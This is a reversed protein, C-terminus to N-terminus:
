SYDEGQQLDRCFFGPRTRLKFYIHSYRFLGVVSHGNLILSSLITPLSYEKDFYAVLHNYSQVLSVIYIWYNLITHIHCAINLLPTTMPILTTFDKITKYQEDSFFGMAEFATVLPRKGKEAGKCFRLTFSSVIIM